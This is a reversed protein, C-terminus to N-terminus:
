GEYIPFNYSLLACDQRMVIQYKWERAVKKRKKFFKSQSQTGVINKKKKRVLLDTLIQLRNLANISSILSNAFIFIFLSSLPQHHQLDRHYLQGPSKTGNSSCPWCWMTVCSHLQGKHMEGAGEEVQSCRSNSKQLSPAALIFSHFQSPLPHFQFCM